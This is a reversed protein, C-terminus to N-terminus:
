QQHAVLEMPLRVPSTRAARAGADLMDLLREYDRDSEPGIRGRGTIEAYVFGQVAASLCSAVEPALANQVGYGRLVRVAIAMYTQRLLELEAGQGRSARLAATYLAPRAQAYSREALAYTELGDRGVHDFSFDRHADILMALAGATLADQFDETGSFYRHLSATRIHCREAVTEITFNELGVEDLLGLGVQLLSEKTIGMLKLAARSAM